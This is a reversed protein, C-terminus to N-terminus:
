HGLLYATSSKGRQEGCNGKSTETMTVRKTVFDARLTYVACSGESAVAILEREDWRVIEDFDHIFVTADSLEPVKTDPIRSKVDVSAVVCYGFRKYCNIEVSMKGLGDDADSWKGQAYFFVTPLKRVVINSVTFFTPQQASGLASCSIITFIAIWVARTM